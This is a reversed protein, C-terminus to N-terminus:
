VDMSERCNGATAHRIIELCLLLIQAIIIVINCIRIWTEDATDVQVLVPVFVFLCFFCMKFFAVYFGYNNYQHDVLDRITLLQENSLDEQQAIELMNENLIVLEQHNFIFNFAKNLEDHNTAELLQSLKEYIALNRFNVSSIAAVTVDKRGCQCFINYISALTCQSRLEDFTQSIFKLSGENLVSRVDSEKNFYMPFSLHTYDIDIPELDLLIRLSAKRVKGLSEGDDSDESDDDVEQAESIFNAMQEKAPIKGMEICVTNMLFHLVSM